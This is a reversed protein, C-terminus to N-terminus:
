GTAFHGGRDCCLGRRGASLVSLPVGLQSNYSGPSRFLTVGAPTLQAIQEKVTTKGRSGTIGVVKGTFRDRHYGALAHLAALTDGVVM